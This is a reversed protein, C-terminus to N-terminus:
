AQAWWVRQESDQGAVLPAADLVWALVGGPEAELGAGVVVSAADAVEAVGQVGDSEDSLSPWLVPVLLWELDVAKGM